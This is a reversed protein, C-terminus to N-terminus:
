AEDAGECIKRNRWRSDPAIQSVAGADPLVPRMRSWPTIASSVQPQEQWSLLARAITRAPDTVAVCAAFASTNNGPDTATASVFEGPQVGVAFVATFAASGSDDTTLQLCGLFQEGEGFGSANCVADALFEVVYITNPTADLTGEITCTSSGDSTACTLTPFPQNNNGNNVLEIGLNGSSAISNQSILNGSGSDILVGDNGSNAIVNGVITTSSAAVVAVGNAGNGLSDGEANTGIFNGEVLSGSTSSSAISVGDGANAAIVNGAGAASGGIINGSEDGAGSFPAVTVGNGGNGLAMTGSADTGVFNGQVLNGTSVLDQNLSTAIAIIVGDSSNAAIVNGTGRAAGGVQNNSANEIMVGYGNQRGIGINGLPATGTVDTGVYNGQVVNGTSGNSWIAVGAGGGDSSGNGSVLNRAAATTGGITNNPADNIFIGFERNAVAQTGSVDTGIYNGQILNATTQRGIIRIGDGLNGSIINRAGAATGGILNDSAGIGLAVGEQGHLARTGNADTGIFNGQITNGTGGTIQVGGSGNGSIVNRAEAATGGVTNNSSNSFILGIINPLGATGTVDTGIFNGQILNASGGIISVGFNILNGSILNRAGPAQGGVTNNTSNLFGIGGVGNTLSATGAINTGIFNGQILNGSSGDVELGTSFNASMVNRAATTTGGITNNSSGGIRIGSGFNGARTGTSDVGIYNGALVNGGGTGLGIGDRRFHDIVLDTVSSNGAGIFLGDADGASGGDLVILPTGAFGPQTSGDIGVPHTILPLASAPRITQAGSGIQFTIQSVGPDANSDVIAQRFSGSGM